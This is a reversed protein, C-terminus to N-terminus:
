PLLRTGMLGGSMDIQGFWIKSRQLVENRDLCVDGRADNEACSPVSYPTSSFDEKELKRFEKRPRM